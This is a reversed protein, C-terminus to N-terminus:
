KVEWDNAIIDELTLHIANCDGPWRVSNCCHLLYHADIYGNGSSGCHSPKSKRRIVFAKEESILKYAEIFTM